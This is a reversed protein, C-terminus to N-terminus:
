NRCQSIIPFNHLEAEAVAEQCSGVFGCFRTTIQKKEPVVIGIDNDKLKVYLILHNKMEKKQLLDSREAERRRERHPPRLGSTRGSASGPGEQTVAQWRLLPLVSSSAWCSSYCMKFTNKEQLVIRGLFRKHNGLRITSGLRDGILRWAAGNSRADGGTNGTASRPWAGLIPILHLAASSRSPGPLLGDLRGLPVRVLVLIAAKREAVYGLVSREPLLRPANVADRPSLVSVNVGVALPPLEGIDASKGALDSLITETSEIFIISLRLVWNVWGLPEPGGLSNLEVIVLNWIGGSRANALGLPLTRLCPCDAIGSDLVTTGCGPGLLAATSGGQVVQEVYGVTGCGGSGASWGGSGSSASGYGSRRRSGSRGPGCRGSCAGKVKIVLEIAEGEVSRGEGKVLTGLATGCGCTAGNTGAEGALKDEVWLGACEL